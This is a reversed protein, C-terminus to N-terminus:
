PNLIYLEEEERYIRTFSFKSRSIRHCDFTVSKVLLTENMREDTQYNWRLKFEPKRPDDSVFIWDGCKFILGGQIWEDELKSNALSIGDVSLKEKIQSEIFRRLEHLDFRKAVSQKFAKAQREEEKISEPTEVLFGFSLFAFASLILLKM